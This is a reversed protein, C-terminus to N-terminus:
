HRTRVHKKRAPAWRAPRGWGRRAAGAGRPHRTCLGPPLAEAASLAHPARRGDEAWPPSRSYSAGPRTLSPLPAAWTAPHAERRTTRLWLLPGAVALARPEGAQAAQPPSLPRGLPCLPRPRWACGWRTGPSTLSGPEAGRGLSSPSGRLPRKASSGRLSRGRWRPRWSLGPQGRAMTKRSAPWLARGPRMPACAWRRRQPFPGRSPSRGSTKARRGGATARPHRPGRASAVIPPLRRGAPAVTAITSPPAGGAASCRALARCPTGCRWPLRRTNSPLTEAPANWTRAGRTRRPSARGPSRWPRPGRPSPLAHPGARVTPTPPASRASRPCLIPALPSPCLPWGNRGNGGCTPAVADSPARRACPLPLAM